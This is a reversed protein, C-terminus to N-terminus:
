SPQVGPQAQEEEQPSSNNDARVTLKKVVDELEKAIAKNKCQNNIWKNLLEKCYTQRGFPKAYMEKCLNPYQQSVDQADFYDYIKKAFKETAKADSKLRAKITSISDNKAFFPLKSSKKAENSMGNDLTLKRQVRLMGLYASYKEDRLAVLNKAHDSFCKNVKKCIEESKLYTLLNEVAQTIDFTQTDNIRKLENIIKKFVHKIQKKAVKDNRIKHELKSKEKANKNKWQDTKLIAHVITTM